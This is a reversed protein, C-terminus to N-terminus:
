KKKGGKIKEQIIKDEIDVLQDMIEEYRQQYTKESILGRKIFDEKEKKLGELKKRWEERKELLQKLEPSMKKRNNKNYFCLLCGSYYSSVYLRNNAIIPSNCGKNLCKDGYESVIKGTTANLCSVFHNGVYVRDKNVAPSM